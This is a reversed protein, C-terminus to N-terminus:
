QSPSVLQQKLQNVTIILIMNQPQSACVHSSQQLRKDRSYLLRHWNRDLLCLEPLEPPEGCPYTFVAHALGASSLSCLAVSPERLHKSPFYILLMGWPFKKRDKFTSKLNSCAYSSVDQHTPSKCNADYNAFSFMNGLRNPKKLSWM